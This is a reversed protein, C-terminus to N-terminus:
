NKLDISKLPFSSLTIPSPLEPWTLSLSLCLSLSLNLISSSRQEDEDDDKRENREYDGKM